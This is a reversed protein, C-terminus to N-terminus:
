NKVFKAAAIKIGDQYCDIMYCGTPLGTLNISASNNTATAGGVKQGVMNLVSITVNGGSIHQLQVNIFEAAPNPFVKMEPQSGNVDAIGTTSAPANFYSKQTCGGHNTIVWYHKNATDLSTISYNQNTASDIATSDLTIRDDYGWQYNDM